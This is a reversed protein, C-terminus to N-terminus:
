LGRADTRLCCSSVCKKSFKAESDSYFANPASGGGDDDGGGGGGGGGNSDGDRVHPKIKRAVFCMISLTRECELVERPCAYNKLKKKKIKVMM